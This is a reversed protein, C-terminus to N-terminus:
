TIHDKRITIRVRGAMEFHEIFGTPYMYLHIWSLSKAKPM